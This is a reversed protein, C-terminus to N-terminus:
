DIPPYRTLQLTGSTLSDAQYGNALLASDHALPFGPPCPWASSLRVGGLSDLLLTMTDALPHPFALTFHLSDLPSLTIALDAAITDRFISTSRPLIAQRAFHITATDTRTTRPWAPL